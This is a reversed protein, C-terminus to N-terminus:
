MVPLTTGMSPPQFPYGFCEFGLGGLVALGCLKEAYKSKDVKVTRDLVTQPKRM